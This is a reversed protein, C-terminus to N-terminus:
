PFAPLRITLTTGKGEASEVSVEGRHAEVVSKIIFMGLGTGGLRSASFFPEFIRASIEPGMGCGTDRVKVVLIGDEARASVTLVGGPEMAKIANEAANVLVRLMRGEDLIAPGPVSVALELSVGASALRAEMGERFRDFLRSLDCVSMSLRIEGRAYDLFEAALNEIRSIEGNIRDISQAFAASDERQLRLLEVRSKLASLPNRIDHLILSSFRGIASLRERSVLEEQLAQLEAYAAALERNQRDLDAIHSENSRRVMMTVSRLLPVCIEADTSILAFFDGAKISLVRSGLRSRVTASRPCDDILSMEGVTQGVGSVGLLVGEPTGFRKWVELEGELVVVFSDGPEGERFIVAGPEYSIEEGLNLISRLSPEPLGQFFYIGKLFDISTM